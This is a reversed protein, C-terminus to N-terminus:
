AYKDGNSIPITLIKNHVSKLENTLEKLSPIYHDRELLLPKNGHIEVVKRALDIVEDSVPRGHTDLLFKEEQLHGAIHYYRIAKSPLETFMEIVNYDHNKSNVYINNIDLLLGCQSKEVLISIFEAESMENNYNHYYSINELVLERQLIDQVQNIRDVLYNINKKFRPIPLLEYLYGKKDRSFSLHESYIDIKFQDCFKGVEKIFQVNLPQSDGISLSLGHAILPYNKAISDLSERKFGGINMWNEPALELFDIESHKPQRLFTNIHESRLGIGKSYNTITRM